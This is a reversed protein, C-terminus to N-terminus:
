VWGLRFLRVRTLVLLGVFVLTPIYPDMAFDVLLYTFFPAVDLFKVEANQGEANKFACYVVISDNNGQMQKLQIEAYGLGKNKGYQTCAPAALAHEVALMLALALLFGLVGCAVATLAGKRGKWLSSIPQPNPPLDSM